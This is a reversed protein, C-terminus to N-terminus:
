FDRVLHLPLQSAVSTRHATTSAATATVAAARESSRPARLRYGRSGDDTGNTAPAARPTGSGGHIPRTRQSGRHCRGRRRHAPPLPPPVSAARFRGPIAHPPRNASCPSPASAATHNNDTITTTTTTTTATANM